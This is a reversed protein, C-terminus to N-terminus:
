GHRSNKEEIGSQATRNQLEAMVEELSVHASKLMVLLNYLVDASENIIAARDKQMVAIIAEVSEEGFKKTTKHIGADLLSKTYSTKSDASVRDAIIQDLDNLSFQTM